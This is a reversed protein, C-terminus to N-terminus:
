AQLRKIESDRVRIIESIIADRLEPDQFDSDIFWTGFAMCMKGESEINDKWNQKNSHFNLYPFSNESRDYNFQVEISKGGTLEQQFRGHILNKM